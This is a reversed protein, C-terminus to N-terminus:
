HRLRDDFRNSLKDAEGHMSAKPIRRISWLLKLFRDLQLRSSVSSSRCIARLSHVALIPKSVSSAHSKRRAEVRVARSIKRILHPLSHAECLQLIGAHEFPCGAAQTDVRMSSSGLLVFEHAQHNERATEVRLVIRAIHIHPLPSELNRGQQTECPM